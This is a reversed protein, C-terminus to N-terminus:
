VNTPAARRRVNCGPTIFARVALESFRRVINTTGGTVKAEDQIFKKAVTLKARPDDEDLHHSLTSEFDAPFNPALARIIAISYLVDRNERGDLLGRIKGLIQDRQTTFDTNPQDKICLFEGLCYWFELERLRNYDGQAPPPVLPIQELYNGALLADVLAIRNTTETADNEAPVNRTHNVTAESSYGLCVLDWVVRFELSAAIQMAPSDDTNAKGVVQLFGALTDITANNRMLANIASDTTFWKTEFFNDLSNAYIQDYLGRIEELTEKPTPSGTKPPQVGGLAVLEDVRMKRAPSGFYATTRHRHSPPTHSAPHHCPFSLPGGGRLNPTIYSPRQDLPRATVPKVPPFHSTSTRSPAGVSDLAPDIAPGYDFHESKINSASIYSTPLVSPLSSYIAANSPVSAPRSPPPGNSPVSASAAPHNPAPQINTPHQQQQKFIPDYGLCERKSKQCNKCTPHQEDCKIRRKRCTLCGTKTRRKIEKKNRPGAMMNRPDSPPLAYRPGMAEPPLGYPNGALVPQPYYPMTQQIQMMQAAVPVQQAQQQQIPDFTRMSPLSMPNSNGAPTGPSGRYPDAPQGAANAYGYHANMGQSNYTPSPFGVPQRPHGPHQPPNSMAASGPSLPASSNQQVRNVPPTGNTLVTSNSGTAVTTTTTTLTTTSTAKATTVSAPPTSTTLTSNTADAAPRIVETEREGGAETVGQLTRTHTGPDAEEPPPTRQTRQKKERQQEETTALQQEHVHAQHQVQGHTQTSNQRSPQSSSQSKPQVPAQSVAPAQLGHGPEERAFAAAATVPEPQPQAQPQEQAEAM